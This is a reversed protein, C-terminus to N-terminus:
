RLLVYLLVLNIFFLIASIVQWFRLPNRKLLPVFENKLANTDPQSLAHTFESLLGFRQEPNIAVAKEMAKNVWLPLDPLYERASVYHVLNLNRASLTKNYPLHGTLLQYTIVGLSFIDSRNTGPLNSLYEPASYNVTGLATNDHLPNSIEEVGAIKTSGFDIIKVTEHEDILINEPKLDQHVMELRHFARLGKAIQEVITRVKQLEPRPNDTMWQRLTTGSLYETVYYLFTRKQKVELVKLVHPNNIRRGVWEEHLFQNIFRPDDNYNISPAKIVVTMQTQPDLALYVETRKTSHLQRVIKYGDITQGPELPPPFPLEVLRQYFDTANNGPLNNIEVIQCTLNDDSGNHLAMAMIANAAATLDQAAQIQIQYQEDRIFEYVGDTVFIFRDGLELPFERFDVDLRLDMGLARSLYAKDQSIVVRHDQTLQELMDNRLRYIRSDGVHFVYASNSKLILASFTTVMANQTEFRRQSNRHLWQNLASLIKQVSTKVTWSEPTSFYDSMFGKIAAHSAERGAESGSVGDALAIVIGKTTALPEAPIEIAYCDQNEPKIGASSAQGFSIALQANM